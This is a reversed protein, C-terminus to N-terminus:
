KWPIILLVKSFAEHISDIIKREESQKQNEIRFLEQNESLKKEALEISNQREDLEQSIKENKKNNEVIEKGSKDISDEMQIISTRLNEIIKNQDTIVITNKAILEEQYERSKVAKVIDKNIIVLNKSAITIEGELTSLRLQAEEIPTMLEGDIKVNPEPANLM